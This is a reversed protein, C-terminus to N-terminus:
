YDFEADLGATHESVERDTEIVNYDEGRMKKILEERTTEDIIGIESIKQTPDNLVSSVIARYYGILRSITEAKYLKTCYQFTFNINEGVEDATLTLEFKTTTNEFEIPVTIADARTRMGAASQGEQTKTNINEMAFVVDFLPHRNMEREVALEEVLDGFSYDQNEFAELTQETVEKLFDAFRKEGTPRCRLALMNVFMGIVKELDAHRRSAVATGIIINEQNSIRSLLIYYLALLVMFLTSEERVAMENLKKTEEADLEFAANRGEFSQVDPRPYDLPMNLRPIEGHFQRLWYEEQQKFSGIESQHAQWQSYDKYHLKLLPLEEGNYLANVDRELLQQSVGDSIIHHIDVLLIPRESKSMVIGVRLLPPQSLDFPRIFRRIVEGVQRRVDPSGGRDRHLEIEFPIDAHVRQVPEEDILEFSTRLSEHRKILKGFADELRGRDAEDELVLIKTLNYSISDPNMQQFLFLRRQVSALPYYEKQQAPSISIYKDKEKGADEGKIYGSLGKITPTKFLQILPIKVDFAKHTKSILITAKLSHGGLDFFNAGASITKEDMGLVESWIRALEKEMESTPPVYEGKVKIKTERLARTDIKGSSNLPMKDVQIFYTPIMYPPLKEVLCDKLETTVLEKGATVYATLYKDGSEDEKVLVVAEQIHKMATLRKEIEGLEIRFGRVKVQQDVRGLFEINGDPLWRAQDGSCYMTEGEVFPDPVFKEATLQPRNLYGRAVGKGSICLEGQGGIPVPNFDSDLIYMKYNMLPSGIPIRQNSKIAGCPYLAANITTETPGYINIINEARFTERLSAYLDPDFVDGGVFLYKFGIKNKEINELLVKMFAPVINLINIKKNHILPWLRLPDKKVEESALFIKSGTTLASFLHMVSVDFTYAALLLYNFDADLQFKNKLGTLQNVVNRHQILVGKPTGTSGSTYIIYALDNPNNVSEPNLGSEGSLSDALHDLLVVDRNTRRLREREEKGVFAIGPISKLVTDDPLKGENKMIATMLEAMTIEGEELVALDINIDQLMTDYSSTAYPGGAIVPGSFGWQRILDVAKHCFNRFYNMSRVGIIDPKFNDVLEKMEDYSDFDVQSKAIKGEIREGFTKNLHTLLYMLGLPPDVVHYMEQSEHSFHQSLDLLLLRTRVPNIKHAPFYQKVRANFNEVKGYDVPLFEGEIEDGAIGIYNLLDSFTKIDVPLYSNYKQVLEDETLMAMQNPLVNRLREKNLFFDGLYEAQCQRTFSERFPLTYPLEHYGLDMSRMIDDESIGHEMAFRAMATNPYIKLIHMYGFPLWRFSKIFELSARAEEETETPFGHMIQVGLIARPYNEIIYEVNRHLKEINM